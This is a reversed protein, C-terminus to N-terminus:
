RKQEQAPAVPNPGREIYIYLYICLYVYIYIYMCLYICICLYISLYVSLYVSLYIHIYTRIYTYIYTYTYLDHYPYHYIDNKNRHLHQLVQPQPTGSPEVSAPVVRMHGLVRLVVATHRKGEEGAQRLTQYKTNRTFRPNVRVRLTVGVVRLVM